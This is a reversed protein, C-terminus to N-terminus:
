DIKQWNLEYALFSSPLCLFDMKGGEMQTISEAEACQQKRTATNLILRRADRSVHQRNSFSAGTSQIWVSTGVNKILYCVGMSTWGKQHNWVSSNLHNGWLRLAGHFFVSELIEKHYETHVCGTRSLQEQLRFVNHILFKSSVTQM